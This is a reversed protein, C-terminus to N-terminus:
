VARSPAWPGLTSSDHQAQNHTDTRGLFGGVADSVYIARSSVEQWLTDLCSLAVFVSRVPRSCGFDLEDLRGLALQHQLARIPVQHIAAALTAQTASQLPGPM